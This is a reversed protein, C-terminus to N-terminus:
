FPMHLVDKWVLVIFVVVHLIAFLYVAIFKPKRTKHRFLRMGAVAGFPGFFSLLLLTSEKIRWKGRLARRKDAGFAAFSILNLLLYAAIAYSIPM